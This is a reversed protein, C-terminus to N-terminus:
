GSSKPLLLTFVTGRTKGEPPSEVEIEANLEKTLSGVLYLGLGIGFIENVSDNEIEKLDLEDLEINELPKGRYFKDFIHPIDTKAIGKGNDSIAVAIKGSQEEVSVNIEGGEPTYKLANKLLSSVALQLAKGDTAATVPKDASSKFNLSLDLSEATKRHNEVCERVIQAADTPAIRIKYGGSEIRSLNLLTQVFEIQRNCEATITELHERREYNSISDNKLVHALTKITTLPTRLEHSVGNVFDSKLRDLEKLKEEREVIRKAMKNFTSGLEGVTGSLLNGTRVDMNGKGFLQVTKTLSNLPRTISRTIFIAASVALITFFLSIFAQWFFRERAPEYLSDAPKGVAVVADIMSVKSLGFIRRTKDQSDAIEISGGSKARLESFLPVGEKEIFIKPSVERNRYLVQNNKGLVIILNEKPMDLNEFIKNVSIGDIQAVIYEERAAPMSLSLLNKNQERSFESTVVFNNERDAAAKANQLSQNEQNSRKVNQKLINKGNRDVIQLDLWDSRSQVVSNLYDQLTFNDEGKELMMAIIQLPQRQAAIHQEFSKSALKAQQELSENLHTRNTQWFNWLNFFGLFVLPIILGLTLMLLRSRITLSQLKM